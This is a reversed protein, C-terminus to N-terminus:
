RATGCTVLRLHSPKCDDRTLRHAEAFLLHDGEKVIYGYRYDIRKGDDRVFAGRDTAVAYLAYGEAVEVPFGYEARDEFCLLREGVALRAPSETMRRRVEEMGPDDFLGRREEHKISAELNSVLSSYAMPIGRPLERNGRQAVADVLLERARAMSVQHVGTAGNIISKAHELRLEAFVDRRKFEREIVPSIRVFILAENGGGSNSPPQTASGTRSNNTAM